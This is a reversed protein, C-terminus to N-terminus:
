LNERLLKRTLYHNAKHMIPVNGENMVPFEPDLIMKEFSFLLPKLELWPKVFKKMNCQKIPNLEGFGVNKWQKKLFSPYDMDPKVYHYWSWCRAVSDRFIIVPTDMEDWRSKFYKIANDKFMCEDRKVETDGYKNILYQHLSISGSRPMGVVILMYKLLYGINFGKHYIRQISIHALCCKYPM